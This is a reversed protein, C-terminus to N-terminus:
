ETYSSSLRTTRFCCKKNTKTQKRARAFVTKVSDMSKLLIVNTKWVVMKAAVSKLSCMLVLSMPGKISYVNPPSCTVSVTCQTDWAFTYTCMGSLERIM